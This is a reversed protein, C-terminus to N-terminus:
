PQAQGVNIQKSCQGLGCIGSVLREPARPRPLKPQRAADADGM